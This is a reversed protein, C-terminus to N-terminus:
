DSFESAQKEEIERGSSSRNPTINGRIHEHLTALQLEMRSKVQHKLELTSSYDQMKNPRPPLTVIKTESKLFKSPRPQL